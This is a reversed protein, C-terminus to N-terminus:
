QTRGTKLTILGMKELERAFRFVYEVDTEDFECSVIDRIMLLSRKGDMLNVIEYQKSSGYGGMKASNKMVWDIYEQSLSDRMVSGSLPGKFLREPIVIAARQYFEDPRFKKEDIGYLHLFLGHSYEIKEYETRAQNELFKAMKDIMRKIRDGQCLEKVEMLNAKEIQALVAPYRAVNSYL